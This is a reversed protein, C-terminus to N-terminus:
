REIHNLDRKWPTGSIYPSKQCVSCVRNRGGEDLERRLEARPEWAYSDASEAPGKKYKPYGPYSCMPLSGAGAAVPISKGPYAGYLNLGPMICGEDPMNTTYDL